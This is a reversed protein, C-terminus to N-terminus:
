FCSQPFPKFTSVLGQPSTDFLIVKRVFIRIQSDCNQWELRNQGLHTLIFSCKTWNKESNSKLRCLCTQLKFDKSIYMYLIKCCNWVRHHNQITPPMQFALRPTSQPRCCYDNNDNDALIRPKSKGSWGLWLKYVHSDHIPQGQM